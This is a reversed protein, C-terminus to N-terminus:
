AEACGAPGVPTPGFTLFRPRFWTPWRHPLYGRLRGAFGQAAEYETRRVLITSEPFHHLGGAHDTHLHTLVVWRVDNPRVGMATLQPGIEDEPRVDFRVALRHYPHWRPLYGPTATRATEGTDVLILGEPHEILWAYIPLPPTWNRDTLTRAARMLGHGRGERQREHVFVSGTRIPHISIGTEEKRPSMVQRPPGVTTTPTTGRSSRM